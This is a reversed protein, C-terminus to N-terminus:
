EPLTGTGLLDTRQRKSVPEQAPLDLLHYEVGAASCSLDTKPCQRLVNCSLVLGQQVYCRCGVLTKCEHATFCKM